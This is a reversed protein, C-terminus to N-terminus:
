TLLLIRQMEDELNNLEKLLATASRKERMKEELQLQTTETNIGSEQQFKRQYNELIRTSYQLKSDAVNTRTAYEKIIDAGYQLISSNTPGMDGASGIIQNKSFSQYMLDYINRDIPPRESIGYSGPPITYDLICGSLRDVEYPNLPSYLTNYIDPRVSLSGFTGTIVTNSPGTLSSQILNNLNFFHSFNRASNTNFTAGVSLMAPNAGAYGISVGLNQNSNLPHCQLQCEGNATISATFQQLSGKQYTAGNIRNLLSQITENQQLPVDVYDVIINDQTHDLLAIRLTGTGSIVDASNIPTGETGFYGISGTLIPPPKTGTGLNHLTNLNDRFLTSFQDLAVQIAVLRQDAMNLGGLEGSSINHDVSQNNINRIPQLAVGPSPTPTPTYSLEFVSNREMVREDGVKVTFYGAHSGRGKEFIDDGLKQALDFQFTNIEEQARVDPNAQNLSALHTLLDRIETNVLEDKRRDITKRMETLTEQIKSFNKLTDSITELAARKHTSTMDVSFTEMVNCVNQIMHDLSNIQGKTGFQEMFESLNNKVTSWYAQQGNAVQLHRITRENLSVSSKGLLVGAPDQITHADVRLAGNEGARGLNTTLLELENQRTRLTNGLYTFNDSRVTNVM